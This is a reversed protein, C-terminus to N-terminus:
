GWFATSSATMGEEYLQGIRDEYAIYRGDNMGYCTTVVDPHWPMLVIHMRKAFQPAREGGLGFQRLQLDLHPYAALLYSEIFGTYHRQQTISDGVMAIRDGKKLLLSDAAHVPSSALFWVFTFSAISIVNRTTM